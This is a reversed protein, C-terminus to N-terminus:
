QRAAGKRIQRGEVDVGVHPDPATFPVLRRTAARRPESVYDTSRRPSCSVLPRGHRTPWASLKQAADALAAPTAAGVPVFESAQTGAHHHRTKDLLLRTSTVPPRLRAPPCRCCMANYWVTWAPSAIASSRVSRPPILCVLAFWCSATVGHSGTGPQGRSRRYRSPTSPWRQLTAVALLFIITLAGLLINLAIENPTKQRNAGRGPRDDTSSARRGAKQTIRV